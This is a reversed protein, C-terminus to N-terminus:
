TVGELSLINNDVALKAESDKPRDPAESAGLAGRM